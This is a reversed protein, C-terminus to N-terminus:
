DDGGYLSSIRPRPIQDWFEGGVGGEGGGLILTLTKVKKIEGVWKNKKRIWSGM